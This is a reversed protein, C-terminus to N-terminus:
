RSAGVSERVDERVENAERKVTAGVEKLKDGVQKGGRELDTKIEEGTPLKAGVERAEQKVNHLSTEIKQAAKNTGDAVRDVSRHVEERTCAAGAFLLLCAVCMPGSKPHITM